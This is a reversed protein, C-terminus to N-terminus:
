TTFLSTDKCSPEPSSSVVVVDTMVEKESFGVVADTMVVKESFGVVVDKMEVKESFGVVPSARIVLKVVVELSLGVVVSFIVAFGEEM